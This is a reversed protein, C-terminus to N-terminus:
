QVLEYVIYKSLRNSKFVCKFIRNVEAFKIQNSAVDEAFYFALQWEEDCCLVRYEVVSVFAFFSHLPCKFFLLYCVM